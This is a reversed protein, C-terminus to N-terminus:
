FPKIVREPNDDIWVDVSYEHESLMFEEKARRNTYFIPCPVPDIIEEEGEPYEFPDFRSTVCIVRHGRDVLLDIIAAWCEPDLTYTDDYDIAVKM